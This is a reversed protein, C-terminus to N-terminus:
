SGTAAPAWVGFHVGATTGLTMAHAGLRRYLQYHNGEAFLHLDFDTIVRGFRYPDGREVSIGSSYHTLLRYDIDEPRLADPIVAEFLGGTGRRQMSLEARSPHHLRLVVERAAPQFVRVVTAGLGDDWHPGLLSFPDSHRGAVLAELDVAASVPPTSAM